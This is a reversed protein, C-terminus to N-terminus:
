VLLEMDYAVVSFEKKPLKDIVNLIGDICLYSGVEIIDKFNQYVDDAIIVRIEGIYDDIVFSRISSENDFIPLLPTLSVSTIKGAIKVESLYEGDKLQESFHTVVSQIKNITAM